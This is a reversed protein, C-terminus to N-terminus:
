RALNLYTAPIEINGIQEPGPRLGALDPKWKHPSGAMPPARVPEDSEAAEMRVSGKEGPFVRVIVIM